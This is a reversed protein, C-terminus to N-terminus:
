KKFRVKMMEFFVGGWIGIALMTVSLEVLIHSTKIDYGTYNMVYAGLLVAFSIFCYIYYIIRAKKYANYFEKKINM